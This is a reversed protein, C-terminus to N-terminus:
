SAEGETHGAASPNLVKQVGDLRTQIAAARKELDSVSEGLRTIQTQRSRIEKDFKVGVCDRAMAAARSRKDKGWATWGTVKAIQERLHRITRRLASHERDTRVRFDILRWLLGEHELGATHAASRVARVRSMPVWALFRRWVSMSLPEDERKKRDSM